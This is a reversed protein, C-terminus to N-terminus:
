LVPSSRGPFQASQYQDRTPSTSAERGEVARFRDLRWADECLREDDAGNGRLGENALGPLVTGAGVERREGDSPPLGVQRPRCRGAFARGFSGRHDVRTGRDTAM